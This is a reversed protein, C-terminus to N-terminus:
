EAFHDNSAEMASHKSHAPYRTGRSTNGSNWSQSVCTFATFRKSTIFETRMLMLFNLKAPKLVSITNITKLYTCNDGLM